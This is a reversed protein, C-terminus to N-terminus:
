SVFVEMESERRNVLAAIVQGQSKNWKAFERAAGDFDGANILRALTSGKFAGCGINYALSICAAQQNATLPTHVYTNVCSEASQADISLQQYAQDETVISDKTYGDGDVIFHGYGISYGNADRYARASFGEFNAIMRLAKEYGTETEVNIEELSQVGLGKIKDQGKRLLAKFNEWSDALSFTGANHTIFFAAVGAGIVFTLIVWVRKM